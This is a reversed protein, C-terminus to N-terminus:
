DFSYLLVDTKHLNTKLVSKFYLALGHYQGYMSKLRSMQFSKTAEFEPFMAALTENMDKNSCACYGSMVPKLSCIIEAKTGGSKELHPEITSQKEASVSPTLSATESSSTSSKLKFFNQVKSLFNRHKKSKGHDNM